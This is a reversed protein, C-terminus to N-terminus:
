ADGKPPLKMWQRMAEDSPPPPPSGREAFVEGFGRALKWALWVVFGASVIREGWSGPALLVYLVAAFVGWSLASRAKPSIPPQESM